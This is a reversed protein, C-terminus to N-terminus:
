RGTVKQLFRSMRRVTYGQPQYGCPVSALGASRCGIKTRQAFCRNYDCLLAITCSHALRQGTRCISCRSRVRQAHRKFLTQCAYPTLQTGDNDATKLALSAPSTPLRKGAPLCAPSAHTVGQSRDPETELDLGLANSPSPIQEAQQEPAETVTSGLARGLAM